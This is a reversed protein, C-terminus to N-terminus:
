GIYSRVMRMARLPKGRLQPAFTSCINSGQLRKASKKKSKLDFELEELPFKLLELSKPCFM